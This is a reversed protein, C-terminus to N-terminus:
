SIARVWENGVAWDLERATVGAGFDEGLDGAKRADGLVANCTTLYSRGQPQNLAETLGHLEAEFGGAGRTIEGMTGRFQVKRASVADWQVQWIVVEAGDYRGALIDVEQIADSSLVGLAATNNVSLGMSSALARASMGGEPHFGQGEFTLPRDHETVGYSVGDRRTVAWCLCVHTAGTALHTHLSSAMM